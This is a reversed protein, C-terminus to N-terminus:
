LASDQIVEKIDLCRTGWGLGTHDPLSIRRTELPLSRIAPGLEEEPATCGMRRSIRSAYEQVLPAFHEVGAPPLRLSPVTLSIGAIVQAHENYIPCAM